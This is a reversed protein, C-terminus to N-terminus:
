NNKNKIYQKNQKYMMYNKNTFIRVKEYCFISHTEPINICVKIFENSKM